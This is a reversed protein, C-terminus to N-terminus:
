RHSSTSADCRHIRLRSVLRGLLAGALLDLVHHQHTLLASAALVVAWAGIASRARASAHPWVSFVVVLTLAVHLSPLLNHRGALLRTLRAIPQWAQADVVAYGLQAPLALYVMAAVVIALAMRLESQRVELPDRAFSRVLMPMGIVSYYVLYAPPWYPMALEWDFYLQYRTVRAATLADAGYFVVAFLLSLRITAILFARGVGSSSAKM